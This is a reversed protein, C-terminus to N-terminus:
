APPRCPSRPLSPLQAAFHRHALCTCLTTDRVHCRTQVRGICHVHALQLRFVRLDVVNRVVKDFVLLLTAFRLPLTVLMLLVTFLMTFPPPMLYKWAFVASASEDAVHYPRLPSRRCREPSSPSSPPM